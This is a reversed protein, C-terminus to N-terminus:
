RCVHHRHQPCQRATHAQSVREELLAAQRLHRQERYPACHSRLQRMFLAPGRTPDRLLRRATYACACRTVTDAHCARVAPHQHHHAHHLPQLATCYRVAHIHTHPSRDHHYGRWGGGHPKKTCHPGGAATDVNVALTKMVMCLHMGPMSAGDALHQYLSQDTVIILLPLRDTQRRAVSRWLHQQPM